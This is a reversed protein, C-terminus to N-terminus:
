IKMPLKTNQTCSSFPMVFSAVTGSHTTELAKHSKHFLQSMCSFPKQKKCFQRFQFFRVIKCMPLFFSAQFVVLKPLKTVTQNPVKM